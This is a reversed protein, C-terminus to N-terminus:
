LADKMLAGAALRQLLPEADASVPVPGHLQLQLPSFPPMVALQEVISFTLVQVKVTATVPFPVTFPKLLVFSVLVILQELSEAEPHEADKLDPSLTWSVAEGLAPERKAEQLPLMLPVAVGYVTTMSPSLATVAVKLRTGFTITPDFPNM